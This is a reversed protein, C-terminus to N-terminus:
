ESAIALKHTFGSGDDDEQPANGAWQHLQPEDDLIWEIFAVPAVEANETQGKSLTQTGQLYGGNACGAERVKHAQRCGSRLGNVCAGQIWRRLVRVDSLEGLGERVQLDKARSLNSCSVARQHFM